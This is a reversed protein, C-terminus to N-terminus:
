TSGAEDSKQAWSPAPLRLLHACLLLMGLIIVLIPVELDLRLRGTQRLLSLVSAALLFIGVVFGQRTLKGSVLMVLGVLALGLTWVWDVARMIELVNLLWAVGLGVILLPVIIAKSAGM